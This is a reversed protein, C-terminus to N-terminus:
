YEKASGNQIINNDCATIQENTIDAYNAVHAKGCKQNLYQSIATENDNVNTSVSIGLGALTKSNIKTLLNALGSQQAGIVCKADLSAGQNITFSSKGIQACYAPANIKGGSIDVINQVGGAPCSQITKEALDLVDKQINTSASGGM